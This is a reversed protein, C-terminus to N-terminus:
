PRRPYICQMGGAFKVGRTLDRSPALYVGLRLQRGGRRFRAGGAAITGPQIGPIPFVNSFVGASSTVFFNPDRVGPYFEYEERFGQWDQINVNLTFARNTSESHAIFFRGDRDRKLKCSAKRVEALFAGSDSDYIRISAGAPAVLAAGVIVAVAASVLGQRVIGM